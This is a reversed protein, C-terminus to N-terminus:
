EASLGPLMQRGDDRATKALGLRAPTSFRRGGELVDRATLIQIRPFMEGGHDLMGAAAAERQMEKTPEQLCLFGALLAAGDREERELTGKLERVHAPGTHGGKVSIVMSKLDGKPGSSKKPRRSAGSADGADGPGADHFWIRGDVGRDRSNLTSPVGGVAEVIWTQFSRPSTKFLVGAQEATVPLGDLAYHRGPELMHNKLLVDQIIRIAPMAIDCGVWSRGLDEAARITTGCGCFPDFVTDGENSSAAIIRRLLAAPKQTPYGLREKHWSSLPPIDTIVDQVAMGADADLYRKFRPVGGEKAPWHVLGAEDLADLRGQVSM